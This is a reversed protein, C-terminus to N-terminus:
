NLKEIYEVVKQDTSLHFAVKVGNSGEYIVHPDDTKDLKETTPYSYFAIVDQYLLKGPVIVMDRVTEAGTPEDTIEQNFQVAANGYVYYKKGNIKFHDTFDGFQDKLVQLSMNASVGGYFRSTDKFFSDKFQTSLVDITVGNGKATKKATESDKVKFESDKVETIDTIMMQKLSEDYQFHFTNQAYVRGSTANNSVERGVNAIYEKDKYTIDTVAYSYLKMNGYNGSAIDKKLSQYANSDKAVSSNLLNIDGKNFASEFQNYFHKVSSEVLINGDKKTGSWQYLHQAKSMSKASIIKEKEANCGTLLISGICLLGLAYKLM